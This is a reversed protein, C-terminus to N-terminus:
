VGLRRRQRRMAKRLDRLEGDVADSIAERASALADGMQEKVDSPDLASGIARGRSTAWKRGRRMIRQTQSRQSGRMGTGILMAATAGLAAGLLAATLLDYQHDRDMDSSGEIGMARVSGRARPRSSTSDNM